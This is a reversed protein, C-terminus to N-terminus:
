LLFLDYSHWKQRNRVQRMVDKKETKRIMTIESKKKLKEKRLDCRKTMEWVVIYEFANLNFQSSIEASKHCQVAQHLTLFIVVLIHIFEM